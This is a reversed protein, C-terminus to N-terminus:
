QLIKLQYYYGNYDLNKWGENPYYMFIESQNNLSLGVSDKQNTKLHFVIFFGDKPYEIIRPLTIELNKSTFPKQEGILESINKKFSMIESSDNPFGQLNNLLQIELEGSYEETVQFKSIQITFSKIFTKKQNNIQILTAVRTNPILMGTANKKRSKIKKEKKKGYNVIEVEQIEKVKDFFFITDNSLAIDVLRGDYLVKDGNNFQFSKFNDITLEKKNNGNVIIVREYKRYDSNRLIAQSSVLETFM